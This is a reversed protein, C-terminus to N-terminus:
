CSKSARRRYNSSKDVQIQSGTIGFVSEVLSKTELYLSVPDLSIHLRSCFGGSTKIAALIKGNEHHPM